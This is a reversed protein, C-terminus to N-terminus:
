GLNCYAQGMLIHAYTRAPVAAITGMSASVFSRRSLMSNEGESVPHAAAIRTDATGMTGM